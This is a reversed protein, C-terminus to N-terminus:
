MYYIKYDLVLNMQIYLDSGFKNTQFQDIAIELWGRWGGIQSYYSSTWVIWIKTSKMMNEWSVYQKKIITIKSLITWSDILIIM